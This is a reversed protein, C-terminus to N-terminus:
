GIEILCATTKRLESHDQKNCNCRPSGRAAQETLRLARRREAGPGALRQEAGRGGGRGARREAGSPEAAGGGASQEARLALYGTNEFILPHLKLGNDRWQINKNM